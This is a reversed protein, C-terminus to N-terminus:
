ALHGPPHQAAIQGTESRRSREGERSSSGRGPECLRSSARRVTICEIFRERNLSVLGVTRDAVMEPLPDLAVEKVDAFPGYLVSVLEEARSESVQWGDGVDKLRLFMEAEEGFSFVPMVEGGDFTLLEIRGNENKAILWYAPDSPQRPAREATRKTQSTKIRTV